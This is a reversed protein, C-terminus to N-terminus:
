NQMRASQQLYKDERFDNKTSDETKRHFVHPITDDAILSYKIEEKKRNTDGKKRGRSTNGEHRERTKNKELIGDLYQLYPSLPCAQRKRLLSPKLNERNFVTNSTPKGYVAKVISQQPGETRLKEHRKDSLASFKIM